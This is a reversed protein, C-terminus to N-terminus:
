KDKSLAKELKKEFEARQRLAPTNRNQWDEETFRRRKPETVPEQPVETRHM